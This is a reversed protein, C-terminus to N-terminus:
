DSHPWIKNLLLLFLLKLAETQKDPAASFPLGSTLLIQECKWM